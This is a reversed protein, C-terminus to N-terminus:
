GAKGDADTEEQEQDASERELLIRTLEQLYDYIADFCKAYASIPGGFPDPIDDSALVFGSLSFLNESDTYRDTIDSYQKKTMALLLTDEQFDAETLQRAAYRNVRLGNRAMVAKAKENLPEPFLAVIGRSEIEMYAAVPSTKMIAAAMPAM